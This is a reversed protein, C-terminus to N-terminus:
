SKEFYLQTSTPRFRDLVHRAISKAARTPDSTAFVLPKVAPEFGARQAIDILSRHTFANIHELPHIKYYDERTQLDRVGECNPTELVLAGGSPLLKALQELMSLPDDLHELVEFLTVAHFPRSQDVLELSEFVKDYSGHQRKSAARDVGVADFGLAACVSLFGGYGCGFDLVRVQEDNRIRRTLKEIRLAHAVYSAGTDLRVSPTTFGSEFVEIAQQSMWREFRRANWEPDLIHQHFAMGCSECQVFAWKQGVLFPGPHEGWPDSAIFSGLPGQDFRGSSLERLALGRCNICTTRQVFGARM